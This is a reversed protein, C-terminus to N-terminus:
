IGSSVSTPSTGPPLVVSFSESGRSAALSTSSTLSSGGNAEGQTVSNPTEQLWALQELTFPPTALSLGQIQTAQRIAATPKSLQKRACTSVLMLHMRRTTYAHMHVHGGGGGM